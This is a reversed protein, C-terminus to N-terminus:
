PTGAYIYYNQGSSRGVREAQDRTPYPGLVVRYVATGDTVGTVVRATNGDVVIKSAQAQAKAADLLVAFSVTFGIKASDVVVRAPPPPLPKPSSVIATDSDHAFSAPQDLASNRPHFGLWVFPYWFDSAGDAVHRTEKMAVPDIFAIDPGVITAVVGDPAVFPL